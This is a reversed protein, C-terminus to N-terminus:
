LHMVFNFFKLAVLFFTDFHSLVAFTVSYVIHCQFINCPIIINMQKNLYFYLYRNSFSSSIKSPVARSQEICETCKRVKLSEVFVDFDM